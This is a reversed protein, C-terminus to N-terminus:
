AVTKGTTKDPAQPPVLLYSLTLGVIGAMVCSGLWLHITWPSGSLIMLEIFYALYLILPTLFAFIRLAAQQEGSPRLNRYLLDILLGAIFAAIILRFQYAFVSVLLTNLALILTLAGFPLQWRKIALLVFGMLIGAQLLIGAVAQSKQANSTIDTILSTNVFPHAFETFFTIMSYSAILSILMPLLAGWNHKSDSRKWAALFPGSMILFGSFALLLHTPSLLAEINKEIGFLIHWTMDGVGGILFLPAGVLSFEYGTPIAQRWSAGRAHNLAVASVIAISCALYGSYLVGHWPTFHATLNCLLIAESLTLARM